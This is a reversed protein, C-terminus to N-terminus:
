ARTRFFLQSGASSSRSRAARWCCTSLAIPEFTFDGLVNTRSGHTLQCAGRVSRVSMFPNWSIPRNASMAVPEDSLVSTSSAVHQRPLM